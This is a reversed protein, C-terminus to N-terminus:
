DNGRPLPLIQRLLTGIVVMEPIPKACYAEFESVWYNLTAQDPADLHSPAAMHQALHTVADTAHDQLQKSRVSLAGSDVLDLIHPSVAALFIPWHALHRLLSPIMTSGPPAIPASMTRVLAAVAPTMDAMNVIPPLPAPQNTVPLPSPGTESRGLSERKQIASLATLLFLNTANGRNYDDIIRCARSAESGELGLLPLSQQPFIPPLPWEITDRSEDMVKQLSGSTVAPRVSAWVWELLGDVVALRRYILNVMGIGCVGMIDAYLARTRTDANAESIEEPGSGLSDNM